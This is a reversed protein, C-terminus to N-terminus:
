IDKTYCRRRAYVTEKYCDAFFRQARSNDEFRPNALVKSIGNETLNKYIYSMLMANIGMGQYKPLIGILLAELTDNHHLARLIHVFGFP